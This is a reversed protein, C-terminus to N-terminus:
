NADKKGGKAPRNKKMQDWKAKQEPTLLASIKADAEARGAQFKEKKQDETLSTDDKLGKMSKRQETMIEQIKSAQDDTLGLDTKMQALHDKMRSEKGERAPKGPKAPADQVPPPAPPEAHLGCTAAAFGAVASLILKKM